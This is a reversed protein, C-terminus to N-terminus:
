GSATCETSDEYRKIVIGDQELWEGGELVFYDRDHVASISDDLVLDTGDSNGGTEVLVNSNLWCYDISATGAELDVVISDVYPTIKSPTSPNTVSRRNYARYRALIQVARDLAPGTRTTAMAALKEDDLPDLRAENLTEWSTILADIV